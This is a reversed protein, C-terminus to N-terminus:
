QHPEHPGDKLNETSDQINQKKNKNKNKEQKNNKKTKKNKTATGTIRKKNAKNQKITTTKYQTKQTDQTGLTALIEPNDIITPGKPKRQIYTYWM